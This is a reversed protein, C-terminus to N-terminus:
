GCLFNLLKKLEWDVSTLCMRFAMDRCLPNPDGGFSGPDTLPGLINVFEYISGPWGHSLLLPMPDSGAGPQHIFHLSIDDFQIRYHDLRNLIREHTRWDYQHQWYDVLEKMYALHAGFKWGSDPIEDPWRTLALRKRLDKLVDDQVAIKFPEPASISTM